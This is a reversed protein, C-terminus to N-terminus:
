PHQQAYGRTETSSEARKTATHLATRQLTSCHTATRQLPSCSANKSTIHRMWTNYHTATHQLSNWHKATSSDAIETATYLNSCVPQQMYSYPIKCIPDYWMCPLNQIVHCNPCQFASCCVAVCQLVSCCVAVCQLVSCCVAVCQLVCPLYQIVHCNPVRWTVHLFSDATKAAAHAMTWEYTHCVYWVNIYTVSNRM